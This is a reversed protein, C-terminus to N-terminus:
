KTPGYHRTIAAKAASATAFTKREGRKAGGITVATTGDARTRISREAKARQEVTLKDIVTAKLEAKSLTLRTNDEFVVTRKDGVKTVNKVVRKDGPLTRGVLYNASSSQTSM